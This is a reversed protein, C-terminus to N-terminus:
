STRGQDNRVMDIIDELSNKIIDKVSIRRIIFIIHRYIIMWNNYVKGWGGKTKRRRTGSLPSNISLNIFRIFHLEFRKPNKITYRTGNREFSSSLILSRTIWKKTNDGYVWDNKGITNSKWKMRIRPIHIAIKLASNSRQSRM